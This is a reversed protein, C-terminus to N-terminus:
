LLIAGPLLCRDTTFIVLGKFGHLKYQRNLGHLSDEVELLTTGTVLRFLLIKRFENMVSYMVVFGRENDILVVKGIKIFHDGSLFMGGNM